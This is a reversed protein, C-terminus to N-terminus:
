RIEHKSITEVAPRNFRSLLIGVLFISMTGIVIIMNKNLPSRLWALDDPIVYPFTMWLIVLVGIITAILAAVNRTQRSVIGSPFSGAYRRCINRIIGV